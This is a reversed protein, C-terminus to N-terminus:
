SVSAPERYATPASETMAQPTPQTEEPQNAFGSQNGLAFAVLWGVILLALVIAMKKQSEKHTFHFHHTPLSALSRM